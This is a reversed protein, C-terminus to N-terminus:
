CHLEEIHAWTLAMKPSHALISVRGQVSSHTRILNKRNGLPKIQHFGFYNVMRYEFNSEQNSSQVTSTRLQFTYYIPKTSARPLFLHDNPHKSWVAILVQSTVTFGSRTSAQVTKCVGTVNEYLILQTHVWKHFLMFCCNAVQDMSKEIKVVTRSFRISFM